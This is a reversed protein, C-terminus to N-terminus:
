LSPTTLAISWCSRRHLQILITTPLSPLCLRAECHYSIPTSSYNYPPTHTLCQSPGSPLRPCWRRLAPGNHRAFCVQQLLNRLVFHFIVCARRLRCLTQSVPQASAKTKRTHQLSGLMAFGESRFSVLANLEMKEPAEEKKEYDGRLGQASCM